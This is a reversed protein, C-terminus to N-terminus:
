IKHLWLLHAGALPPPPHEARWKAAVKLHLLTFGHWHMQGSSGDAPGPGNPAWDLTRPKHGAPWLPRAQARRTRSGSLGLSRSVSLGLAAWEAGSAPSALRRGNARLRTRGYFQSVLASSPRAVVRIPRGLEITFPSAAAGAQPRARRGCYSVPAAARPPGRISENWRKNRPWRAPPRAGWPRPWAMPWLSRRGWTPWARLVGSMVTWQSRTARLAAALRFGYAQPTTHRARRAAKLPRHILAASNLKTLNIPKTYAGGPTAGAPRYGHRWFAASRLRLGRRRKTGVALPWLHSGPRAAPWQARSILRVSRSSGKDQGFSSEDIVCVPRQSLYLGGLEKTAPSVPGPHACGPLRAAPCGPRRSILRARDM